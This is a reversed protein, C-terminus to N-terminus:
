VGSIVNCRISYTYIGYVNKRPYWIPYVSIIPPYLHGVQLGVSVETKKCVLYRESALLLYM